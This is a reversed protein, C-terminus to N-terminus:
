ADLIGVKFVVNLKFSASSPVMRRQIGKLEKLPKNNEPHNTALNSLLIGMVTANTIWANDSVKIPSEFEINTKIGTKHKNANLMRTALIAM